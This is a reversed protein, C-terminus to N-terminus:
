NKQASGCGDTEQNSFSVFAASYVYRLFYVSMCMFLAIVDNLNYTCPTVIFGNFMIALYLCPLQSYQVTYSFYNRMALGIKEKIWTGVVFRDPWSLSGSLNCVNTNLSELLLFTSFFSLIM